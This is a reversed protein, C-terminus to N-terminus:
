HVLLAYSINGKQVISIIQRSMNLQETVNHKGHLKSFTIDASTYICIKLRM